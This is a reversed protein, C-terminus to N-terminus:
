SSIAVIMSGSGAHLGQGIGRAFALEIDGLLKDYKDKAEKLPGCIGRGQAFRVVSLAWRRMLEVSLLGPSRQISHWGNCLFSESELAIRARQVRWGLPPLQLLDLAKMDAKLIRINLSTQLMRRLWKWAHAARASSAVESADRGVLALMAEAVRVCPEPIAGNIAFLAQQEAITFQEMFVGLAIPPQRLASLNKMYKDIMRKQFTARVCWSAALYIHKPSHLVDQILGSDAPDVLPVGEATKDADARVSLALWSEFNANASILLPATQLKKPPTKGKRNKKKMTIMKKKEM